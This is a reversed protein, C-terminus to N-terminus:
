LFNKMEEVSGFYGIDIYNGEFDQTEFHLKM